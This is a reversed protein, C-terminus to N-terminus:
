KKGKHNQDWIFLPINLSLKAYLPFSHLTESVAMDNGQCCLACTSGKNM